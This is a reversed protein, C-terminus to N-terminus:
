LRSLTFPPLKGENVMIKILNPVSNWQQVCLNFEEESIEKFTTSRFLLLGASSTILHRVKDCPFESCQACSEFGKERACPRAKCQKDAILDGNSKCGRCKVNEATYHEHGLYKRWAEVMKQRINIDESRAACLHCNYGCYGIMHDKNSEM